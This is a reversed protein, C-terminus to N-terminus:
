SDESSAADGKNDSPPPMPGRAQWKGLLRQRLDFLRKAEARMTGLFRYRSKRFWPVSAPRNGYKEKYEGGGGWDFVEVGQRKWYRMAYWHLAENPRFSQSHRYSANGWFLAVKNMGPYIGTGIPRGQPDLARLLLLRGTSDLHRILSQVRELDYTPVLEQKAFVDKLQDYYEEAFAPGHAEEIRTGSKEAKRVCRRCASTMQNFLEEESRTLDTEYSQYADLSYGLPVGDEPQFSRDSVELHWCGLERFAFVELAELAARRSIEPSLNFGVYPTTWGPFSSGLIRVGMRRIMLGTFYGVRSSGQRVEAVVPEANQTEAIFALWERTQFVTRDDLQDLVNWAVDALKLRFLKLSHDSPLRSPM